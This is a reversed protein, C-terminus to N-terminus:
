HSYDSWNYPNMSWLLVLGSNTLTVYRHCTIQTLNYLIAIIAAAKVNYNATQVRYMMDTTWGM